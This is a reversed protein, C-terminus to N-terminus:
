PALVESNPTPGSAIQALRSERAVDGGQGLKSWITRSTGYRAYGHFQMCRRLNTHQM